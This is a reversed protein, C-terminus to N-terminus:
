PMHPKLLFQDPYKALLLSRRQGALTIFQVRSDANDKETLKNGPIHPQLVGVLCVHIQTFEMLQHLVPFGPTSCDM